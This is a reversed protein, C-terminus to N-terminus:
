KGYNLNFKQLPTLTQDDQVGVKQVNSIYAARCATCVIKGDPAKSLQCGCKIEARCNPCM